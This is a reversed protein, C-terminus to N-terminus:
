SIRLLIDRKQNSLQSRIFLNYLANINNFANRFNNHFCGYAGFKFVFHHQAVLLFVRFVLISQFCGLGPQFNSLIPRCFPFDVLFNFLVFVFLEIFYRLYNIGFYSQQSYLLCFIAHVQKHMEQNRTAQSTKFNGSRVRRRSTCNQSSWFMVQAWLDLFASANM